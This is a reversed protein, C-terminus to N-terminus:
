FTRGAFFERPVPYMVAQDRYILFLHRFRKPVEERDSFDKFFKRGRCRDSGLDQSKEQQGRVIAARDVKRILSEPLCSRPEVVEIIQKFTKLRARRLSKGSLSLPLFRESTDRPANLFGHLIVEISGRHQGRQLLKATIYISPQM